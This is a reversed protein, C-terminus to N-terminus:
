RSSVANTIAAILEPPVTHTMASIETFIRVTHDRSEWWEPNLSRADEGAYRSTDTRSLAALNPANRSSIAYEGNTTVYVDFVQVRMSGPVEFHLLEHGEFRKVVVNSGEHVTVEISKVEGLNDAM